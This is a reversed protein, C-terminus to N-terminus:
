PHINSLTKKTELKNTFFSDIFIIISFIILGLGVSGIIDTIWHYGLYLRSLAVLSTILITIITWFLITIISSRRSYLLYGIILFLVLISITHGSPFSYDLEFPIIMNIQSPRNISTTIKLLIFSLTSLGMAIILLLPRLTERKILAWLVSILIVIIILIYPNTITTIIQMISTIQIQRNEILWSLIPQNFNAIGINQNISIFAAWFIIIGFILSIIAVIISQKITWASKKIKIISLAM